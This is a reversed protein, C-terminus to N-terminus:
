HDQDDDDARSLEDYTEAQHPKVVFDALDPRRSLDVPLPARTKQSRRRRELLYAVSSIRPTDRQLAEALTARLAKEGYDELLRLLKHTTAGANEDKAFAAELFAQAEPVAAILRTSGTSGRAKRKTELLTQEHGPDDVYRGRDYSRRHSSIETSGDLIRVVTDSAVLSLPRGVAQPAISYHNLDFPVYLGRAKPLPRILDAVFAHTPLPLLRPREEEWVQAVTKSPEDPWPREHAVRDRWRWARLNLDALTTFDSGEFFSERVYRIAREVKGKENGRGPACPRPQFHYHSVLEILRPHFHVARGQRELVASKLNDYLVVRPVGGFFDFGRVHGRFFSEQTQDFFFELYLARCFSLTMVFCSLRREARGVKVQGFHAWDVQAQEGPFTVLRLFAEKGEPRLRAVVCRLRQISGTYGRQRIMELLRTARLRPHRDLTERLFTVYPDLLSPRLRRPRNLPDTEIAARVTDRHVGLEVAITGIKWHEAYYLRRITALREPDLM